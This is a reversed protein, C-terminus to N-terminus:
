NGSCALTQHESGLTMTRSSVKRQKRKIKFEVVEQDSLSGNDMVVGVM